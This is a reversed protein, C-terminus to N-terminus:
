PINRPLRIRSNAPLISLFHLVLNLATSPPEVYLEYRTAIYVYVVSFGRETLFPPYQSM